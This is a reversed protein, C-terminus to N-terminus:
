HGTVRLFIQYRFPTNYLLVRSSKLPESSCGAHVIFGKLKGKLKTRIDQITKEELFLWYVHFSLWLFSNITPVLALCFVIDSYNKNGHFCVFLM